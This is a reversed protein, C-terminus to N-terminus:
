ASVFSGVLQRIHEGREPAHRGSAALLLVSGGVRLKMSSALLV